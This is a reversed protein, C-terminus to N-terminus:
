VLRVWERGQYGAPPKNIQAGLTLLVQDAIDGLSQKLTLIESNDGGRDPNIIALMSMNGKGETFCAM